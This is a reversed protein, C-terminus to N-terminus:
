QVGFLNSVPGYDSADYVIMEVDEAEDSTIFGDDDDDFNNLMFSEFAPDFFQVYGVIREEYADWYEGNKYYKLRHSPVYINCHSGNFAGRPYYYLPASTVMSPINASNIKIYELKSCQNFAYGCIENVSAPIDLSTLNTSYYFAADSIIQLGAPLIVQGLTCHCFAWMAIQDVEPVIYTADDMGATAFSVLVKKGDSGTEILARGDPTAFKGTFSRLNECYWFPNGGFVGPAYNTTKALHVVSEPIHVSTLRTESFASNGIYELGDPLDIESLDTCSFAWEGIDKLGTGFHVESLNECSDFASDGIREVCDSFSVSTLKQGNDSDRWYVEDDIETIPAKFRIIGVGDNESPAIIEDVVNGTNSNSPVVYAVASNDTTTYWIENLPQTTSAHWGTSIGNAINESNSIRDDPTNMKRFNSRNMKLNSSLLTYTGERGDALHITVYLGQSFTVPLMVIYYETNKEFTGGEPAMLTVETSCEGDVQTSVPLGGSDLTVDVTGALIEGNIGKITISLIDERNFLFYFGSYVNKFSIGLSESRGIMMAADDAYSGARAKQLTPLNARLVATRSNGNPESYGLASSSPYLGWVYDKETGDEAGTIVPITGKFKAIKVPEDNIATFVSAEGASYIMIKDDPLWWTERKDGVKHMETRTEDIAQEMQATIIVEKFEMLAKDKHGNDSLTELDQLECGGLLFLLAFPILHISKM